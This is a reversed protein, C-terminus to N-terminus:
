HGCPCGFDNINKQLKINAEIISLMLSIKHVFYCLVNILTFMHIILGFWFSKNELWFCRPCLRFSVFRCPGINWFWFIQKTQIACNFTESFIWSCLLIKLCIQSYVLTPPGSTCIILVQGNNSWHLKRKSRRSFHRRNWHGCSQDRAHRGRRPLSSKVGLTGTM